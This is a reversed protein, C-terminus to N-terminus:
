RQRRTHRRLHEVPCSSTCFIRHIQTRLNVKKLTMARMETSTVVGSGSRLNSPMKWITVSNEGIAEGAKSTPRYVHKLTWWSRAIDSQTALGVSASTMRERISSFAMRRELARSVSDSHIMAPKFHKARRASTCMMSWSPPSMSADQMATMAASCCKRRGSTWTSPSWAVIRLTRSRSGIGKDM